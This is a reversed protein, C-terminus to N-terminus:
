DRETSGAKRSLAHLHMQLVSTMHDIERRDQLFEPRFTLMTVGIHPDITMHWCPPAGSGQQDHIIKLDRMDQPFVAQLEEAM